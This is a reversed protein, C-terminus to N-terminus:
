VESDVLESQTMVRAEPGLLRAFRQAAAAADVGPRLRVLGVDVASPSREPFMRLFNAPTTFLNGDSNISVGVSISDVIEIRRYNIETTVRNGAALSAAMPGYTPRSQSDFLAHDALRVDSARESFGPLDMMPDAPELAYVSIPFERKDWPNKLRGTGIYLDEVREVDIDALLRRTLRRPVASPEFITKTRPSVVVIDSTIRKAISVSSNIAGERIGLQVLMLMVAVVVGSAAVVLK